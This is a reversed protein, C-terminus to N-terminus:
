IASHSSIRDIIMACFAHTGRLKYAAEIECKKGGREMVQLQAKWSPPLRRDENILKHLKTRDTGTLEQMDRPDCDEEIWDDHVGLWLLESLAM